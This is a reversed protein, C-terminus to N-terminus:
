PVTEIEDGVGVVGEVLVAGYVGAKGEHAKTVRGLIAANREATDPDITIMACRSDRKLVAIVVNAGIRLTSGVFEDEAFGSTSGLDAFVNARFRRKDLNLGLERGLQQATQTSFLSVPRSDTMARESRLLTLDEREALGESLERILAPDDVALIAGSPTEVDVALDSPIAPVPNLGIDQAEACNPPMLARDPHRFRPQYLLMKAQERGTLYPFGKPRAAWQFAFLRDGYVGAFSVFAQNLAEGRMSKVPYRWLSEVRGVIALAEEEM